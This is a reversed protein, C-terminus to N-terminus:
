FCTGKFFPPVSIVWSNTKSVDKEPLFIVKPLDNASTSIEKTNDPHPIKLMFMSVM